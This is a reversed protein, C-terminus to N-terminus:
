RKSKREPLQRDKIGRSAKLFEEAVKRSPGKGKLPKAGSAIAGM